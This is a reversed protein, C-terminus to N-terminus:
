SGDPRNLQLEVELSTPYDAYVTKKYRYITLNLLEFEYFLGPDMIFWSTTYEDYSAYIDINITTNVGLNIAEIDEFVVRQDKCRGEM